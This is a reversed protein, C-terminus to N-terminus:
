ILLLVLQILFKMILMPGVHMMTLKLILVKNIPVHMIKKSFKQNLSVFCNIINKFLLKTLIKVNM